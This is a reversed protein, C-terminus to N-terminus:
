AVIYIKRCVVTADRRECMWSKESWFRSSNAEPAQLAKQKCRFIDDQVKWDWRRSPKAKIRPLAVRVIDWPVISSPVM